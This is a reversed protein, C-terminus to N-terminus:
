EGNRADGSGYLGGKMEAAEGLHQGKGRKESVSIARAASANPSGGPMRCQTGMGCSVGLPASSPSSGRWHVRCVEGRTTEAVRSHGDYWMVPMVVLLAVLVKM